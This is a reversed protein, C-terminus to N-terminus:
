VGRSTNLFERHNWIVPQSGVPEIELRPDDTQVLCLMRHGILLAQRSASAIADVVLYATEPQLRVFSDYKTLVLVTGTAQPDSGFEYLAFDALCEDLADLNRGYYSPFSLLQEFALHMDVESRWEESRFEIIRYGQTRLWSVTDELNSPSWFKQVPSNFLLQFDRLVRDGRTFSGM